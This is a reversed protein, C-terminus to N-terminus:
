NTKKMVKGSGKLSTEVAPDGLYYVNGSGLVSAHLGISAFLTANGSGAIKV